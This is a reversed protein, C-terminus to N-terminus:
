DKKEGLLVRYYEYMALHSDVKPGRTRRYTNQQEPDLIRTKVNDRLQIDIMARIQKQIAPSYIPCAVESRMDLNRSMLDASTIYYQEDGANGFIFIRSHELFRGVISIATINDSLGRVGAKLSCMGRVILTVKVGAASAEYLRDIMHRDVLNNLKIICYAEQGAKALAIEKDILAYIRNRMFFPSVLLHQYEGVEFNREFFRFMTAVESTLREDSTFLSHDSYVRSTDENFNGTGIRAYYVKKAGEIRTVLLLKSHVKLGPVGFIVTAGADQLQQSWMINNQEDFRAQLEMVATVKKGNRIANILASVVMSKKAARYLTIKIEKVKPDIAAERLLDLVPYFSHYPYCLLVDKQKLVKMVSGGQPLDPHSLPKLKTFRTRKGGVNPFNMFDKFNHYRGGPILSSSSTVKMAKMLMERMEKPMKADYVFRVPTGKSRQKLSKELKMLLSLSVDTEMNLEADRTLKINFAEFTDYDSTGYINGLSFRIVDDLLIIYNKDGEKPLVIFRPLVHTPLEILSFRPERKGKSASLRVMLYVSKDRLYPFEPALDLMIPVLNPQVEEIFYSRVFKEQAENLQTENIVHIQHGKLEALLNQYIRDFLRQQEVVERNVQALVDKPIGLFIDHAEKRIGLMRKLSAVRVRFFEDRNNSYIGLFHLREVIPVAPDEAEQLVRHNFSLWSLERAVYRQRFDTM